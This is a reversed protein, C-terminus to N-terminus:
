SDARRRGVEFRTLRCHTPTPFSMRSVASDFEYRPAKQGVSAGLSTYMVCVEFPDFHVFPALPTVRVRDAADPGWRVCGCKKQPCKFKIANL